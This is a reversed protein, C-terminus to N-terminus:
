YVSVIAKVDRIRVEGGGLHRFQIANAECQVNREFSPDSSPIDLNNELPKGNVIVQVRADRRFAEAQIYIKEIYRFDNHDKSLYVTRMEGEQLTFADDSLEIPEVCEERYSEVSERQSSRRCLECSSSTAAAERHRDCCFQRCTHTVQTHTIQSDCSNGGLVRLITKAELYSASVGDRDDIYQRGEIKQRLRKMDTIPCAWAYKESLTELDSIAHDLTLILTKFYSDPSGVPTIIPYRINMRSSPYFSRIAMTNLTMEIQDGVFRLIRREFQKDGFPDKEPCRGCRLYPLYYSLDIQDITKVIFSTAFFLYRVLTRERNSEEILTEELAQYTELVRDVAQATFPRYTLSGDLKMEKMVDVLYSMALDERGVDRSRRAQEAAGSLRDKLNECWRTLEDASKAWLPVEMMVLVISLACRFLPSKFVLFLKKM